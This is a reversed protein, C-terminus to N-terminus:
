AVDSLRQLSFVAIDERGPMIMSSKLLFTFLAIGKEGCLQVVEHRSADLREWPGGGLDLGQERSEAVLDSMNWFRGEKKTEKPRRKEGQRPTFHSGTGM